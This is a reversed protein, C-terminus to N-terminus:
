RKNRLPILFVLCAVLFIISGTITLVDKNKIGSAIFFVSCVVFLGWGLLHYFRDNSTTDKSDRRPDPQKKM